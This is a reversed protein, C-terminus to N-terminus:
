QIPNFSYITDLISVPLYEFYDLVIAWVLVLGSIMAMSSLVDSLHVINRSDLLGIANRGHKKKGDDKKDFVMFISSLQM